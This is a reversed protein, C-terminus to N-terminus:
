WIIVSLVNMWVAFNSLWGLRQLTRVQGLGVGLIVFILLCVVFCLPKSTGASIQAISQGMGLILSGLTLIMQISQLVNIIHRSTPGFVRYFAAGYDRLPYRDSDMEIFVWWLYFGASANNDAQKQNKRNHPPYRVPLRCIRFTHVICSWSRIRTTLFGLQFCTLTQYLKLKPFLM